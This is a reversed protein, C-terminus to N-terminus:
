CFVVDDCILFIKSDEFYVGDKVGIHRFDMEQRKHESFSVYLLGLM